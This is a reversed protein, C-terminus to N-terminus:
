RKPLQLPLLTMSFLSFFVAFFTSLGHKTILLGFFHNPNTKLRKGSSAFPNASLSDHDGGDTTMTCLGDRHCQPGFENDHSLTPPGDSALWPKSPSEFAKWVQFFSEGLSTSLVNYRLLNFGVICHM